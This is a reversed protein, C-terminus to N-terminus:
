ADATWEFEVGHLQMHNAYTDGAFREVKLAIMMGETLALTKTQYM